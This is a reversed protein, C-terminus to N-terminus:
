VDAMEVAMMAAAGEDQTDMQDTNGTGDAQPEHGTDGRACHAFWGDRAILERPTGTDVVRGADLVVVHDADKVM